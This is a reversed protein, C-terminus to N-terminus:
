EVLMEHLVRKIRTIVSRGVREVRKVLRRKNITRLQDLAVM